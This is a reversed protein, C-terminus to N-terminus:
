YSDTLNRVTPRTLLETSWLLFYLFEETKPKMRVLMGFKPGARWVFSQHVHM